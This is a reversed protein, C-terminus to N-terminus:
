KGMCARDAARMVAYDDFAIRMKADKPLGDYERRLQDQDADSWTRLPLCRVLTSNTPTGCGGLGCAALVLLAFAFLKM